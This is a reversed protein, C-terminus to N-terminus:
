NEENPQRYNWCRKNLSGKRWQAGTRCTSQLRHTQEPSELTSWQKNKGQYGLTMFVGTNSWTERNHLARGRFDTEKSATRGKWPRKHSKFWRDADTFCCAWPETTITNLTYTKIAGVFMMISNLRGRQPYLLGRCKNLEWNRKEIEKM